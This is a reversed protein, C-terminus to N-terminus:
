WAPAAPLRAAPNGTTGSTPMVVALNSAPRSPCPEIGQWAHHTALLAVKAVCFVAGTFTALFPPVVEGDAVLVALPQVKLLMDSLKEASAEPNIPLYACGSRWAALVATLFWVTQPGVVGVVKSGSPYARLQEEICRAIPTAADWLDDGVFSRVPPSRESCLACEDESDCVSIRIYARRSDFVNELRM